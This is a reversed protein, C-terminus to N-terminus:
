EFIIGGCFCWTKSGRGGIDGNTMKKMIGWGVWGGIDGSLSKTVYHCFKEKILSRQM